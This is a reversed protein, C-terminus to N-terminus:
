SRLEGLAQVQTALKILLKFVLEIVGKPALFHLYIIVDSAMLLKSVDVFNISISKTITVIQRVIIKPKTTITIIQRVLIKYIKAIIGLSGLEM